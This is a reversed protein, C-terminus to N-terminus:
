RPRPLADRWNLWWSKAPPLDLTGYWRWLQGNNGAVIAEVTVGSPPPLLEAARELLPRKLLDESANALMLLTLVDRARATQVVADIAAARGAEDLPHELARVGVAFGPRSDDYIPVGPRVAATMISSAGAPVLAEGWGNSLQVWGTDVRVRSTGGSDVSLDFICGLDIVSGAPTQFAFRGPPAWVRVRVTGRDLLVRHRASSTMSLTLASGPEVRMTGIRAIEIRASTTAGLEMPQDIRLQGRVPMANSSSAETTVPWPASAPWSWRWSWFATVGAVLLAASAALAFLARGYTPRRAPLPPLRRLPRRVRDFRAAALAREVAQVDGSAPAAPDWLYPDIQWDDETTM